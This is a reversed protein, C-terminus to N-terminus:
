APEANTWTKGLSILRVTSGSVGYKKGVENSSLGSAHLRKIEPIDAAKLKVAGKSNEGRRDPWRGLRTADAMNSKHTDWRLNNVRNDSPVGNNHCGELGPPCPGIFITLILVHIQVHEWVGKLYLRVCVHGYKSNRIPSLERWENGLTAPSRGKRVLRTWVKGDRTVSYGPYGPVMKREDSV